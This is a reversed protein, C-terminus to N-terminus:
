EDAHASEPGDLMAGVISRLRALTLRQPALIEAGLGPRVVVLSPLDRLGYARALDIAPDSLVEGAIPQDELYLAIDQSLEGSVARFSVALGEADSERVLDNWSPLYARCPACATTFFLVVEVAGHEHGATTKQVVELAGSPAALVVALFAGILLKQM